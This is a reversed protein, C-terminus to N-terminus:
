FFMLKFFIVILILLGLVTALFEILKERKDLKVLKYKDSKDSM